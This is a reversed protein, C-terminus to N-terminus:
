FRTTTDLHSHGAATSVVTSTEHRRGKCSRWCGAASAPAPRTRRASSSQSAQSGAGHCHIVVPRPASARATPPTARRSRQPVIVVVCATTHWCIGPCPPSAGSRPQLVEAESTVPARKYEAGPASRTLSPFFVILKTTAIFQHRRRSSTRNRNRHGTETESRIRYLLLVVRPAALPSITPQGQSSAPAHHTSPEARPPTVRAIRGRTFVSAPLGGAVAAVSQPPPVGLRLRVPQFGTSGAAVPDPHGQGDTARPAAGSPM